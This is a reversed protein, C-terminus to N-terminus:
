DALPPAWERVNLFPRELENVAHQTSVVVDRTQRTLDTNKALDAVTAALKEAARRAFWVGVLTATLQSAFGVLAIILWPEVIRM